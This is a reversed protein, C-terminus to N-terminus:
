RVCYDPIFSTVCRTGSPCPFGKECDMMCVNDVHCFAHAGFKAPCPDPLDCAMTCTGVAATGKACFLGDGCGDEDSCAEGFHRQNASSCGHTMLAALLTAMLGASVTRAKMM